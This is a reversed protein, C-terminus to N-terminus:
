KNFWMVHTAWSHLSVMKRAESPVILADPAMENGTAMYGHGDYDTLAGCNIGDLFERVTMIDGYDSLPELKPFKQIKVM